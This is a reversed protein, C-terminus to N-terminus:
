YIQPFEEADWVAIAVATVNWFGSNYVNRILKNRDCTKWDEPPFVSTRGDRYMKQMKYRANRPQERLKAVVDERFQEPDKEGAFMQIKEM